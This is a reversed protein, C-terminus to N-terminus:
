GEFLFLTFLCPKRSLIAVALPRRTNALLRLCLLFLNVTESSHLPFYNQFIEKDDIANIFFYSCKGDFM